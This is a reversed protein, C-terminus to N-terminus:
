AKFARALADRWSPMLLGFDHYLKEQFLRSNLPRKAPTPYESSPIPKVTKVKLSHGFDPALKFIELAFEYWSCCGQGCVNYIEGGTRQAFRPHRLMQLTLAALDPAYTPSGIQDNVISLEERESGLRLMTRFFNTGVHSYVWSTRLILARAGCALIAQDGLLKTRGYVSLPNPDSTESRPVNGSGDFVYDTSYHILTKKNTTAWLAIASPTQHNVLDAAESEIEAKDVATYASTNIIVDPNCRAIFEVVQTPQMFNAENRDAFRASEGLLQNLAQAVQGNKGLVLISPLKM